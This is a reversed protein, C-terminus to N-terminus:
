KKKAVYNHNPRQSLIGEVDVEPVPLDQVANTSGFAQCHEIGEATVSQLKYLKKDQGVPCVANCLGCPYRFEGKLKAHYAACRHKDMKAIIGDSPATFAQMPCRLVCSQCKLCLEKKLMPDPPLELDTIVSVLRIRPGYEKTLLTHNMGVTGLGAYLGALVHSFAAEPKKVLVSIDGYCDRPFFHARHGLTNIYNALRYAIEDLFKNTTNYLESYVVSPTTELMSPFIQVALVIVSKSWPWINQPWFEPENHHESEWREVNAVGVLNAGLSHAKRKIKRKFEAQSESM